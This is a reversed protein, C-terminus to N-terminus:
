LRTDISEYFKGIKEQRTTPTQGLRIKIARSLKAITSALFFHTLGNSDFGNSATGIIDNHKEMLASKVSDKL